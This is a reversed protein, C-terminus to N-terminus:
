RRFLTLVSPAAVALMGVAYFQAHSPDLHALYAMGSVVTLCRVIDLLSSGRSSDGVASTSTSTAIENPTSDGM